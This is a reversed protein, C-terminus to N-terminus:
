KIKESLSYLYPSTTRNPKIYVGHKQVFVLLKTINKGVLRLIKYRLTGNINELNIANWYFFLFYECRKVRLGTGNHAKIIAKCDLPNHIDYVPRNFVRTIFGPIGNLNPIETFLLGGPKLYKSLASLVESTNEFHEIVGFSIVIDFEELLDKPPTFFDSYIVNEEDIGYKRFLRKEQRCGIESYDLGYVEYNWIKNFYVLWISNACGVELVKKNGKTTKLIKRFMKHFQVYYYDYFSDSNINFLSPTSKNKWVGNWYNKGAKDM